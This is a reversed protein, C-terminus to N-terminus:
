NDEVEQEEFEGEIVTEHTEDGQSYASIAGAINFKRDIFEQYRALVRSQMATDKIEGIVAYQFMKQQDLIVTIVEERAMSTVEQAHRKLETEKLRRLVELAEYIEKWTQAESDGYAVLSILSEWGQWYEDEQGSKRSKEMALVQLKLSRWTEGSEGPEVKDILQQVRQVILDIEYQTSIRAMVTDPLLSATEELLKWPTIYGRKLRHPEIRPAKPMRVSPEVEKIPPPTSDDKLANYLSPKTKNSSGKPRGRGRKIDVEM